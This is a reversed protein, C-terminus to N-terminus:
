RSPSLRGERADCRENAQWFDGSEVDLCTLWKGSGVGTDICASCEGRTPWGSPQPTHGCIVMKGSKHRLRQDYQEWFLAYDPQDPMDLDPIVTAHVFNHTETEYWARSNEFFQWHDEPIAHQWDYVGWAGYSRLAEDGGYSSWLQAQLPDQRASLVMAEHNGRLAVTPQERSHQIVSSVVGRSDPGRDVYDGLFILFDDSTIGAAKTLTNLASLCGHIDGIALTRM